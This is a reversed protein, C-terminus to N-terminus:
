TIATLPLQADHRADPLRSVVNSPSPLAVVCTAKVLLAVETARWDSPFITVAPEAFEPRTNATVLCLVLPESSVENLPSPM